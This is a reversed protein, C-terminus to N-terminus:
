FLHLFSLRHHMGLHPLVQAFLFSHFFQSLHTFLSLSISTDKTCCELLYLPSTRQRYTGAPLSLVGAGVISKILNFVETPITATGGSEENAGGNPIEAVVDSPLRTKSQISPKTIASNQRTTQPTILATSTELVVFLLFISPFKM